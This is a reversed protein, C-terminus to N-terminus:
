KRNLKWVLFNLIGAFSVWFLYPLFLLSAIRSSPYVLLITLLISIWLFIIEIFAYSPKRLYFFIGSWAINLLFQIVFMLGAPSILTIGSEFMLCLSIGMLAFLLTWVPGFIWNPPNISPKKLKKYWSPLSKFNFISGIAGALECIVICGLLLFLNM